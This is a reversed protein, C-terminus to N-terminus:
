GPETMRRLDLAKNIQEESLTGQELMLKKVSIRRKQAEKAIAAAKDYGIIPNLATVLASSMQALEECREANAKIGDVCKEAFATCANSLLTVSCLFNHIMVPIMVNLEFAGGQGGITIAADNGIVQAAVQAVVESMVPNVKGPMISSGPQLDPIHIEGLGCFPGSAMWRIDNAIKMVSCAVTKLGGSAMVLDDRGAQAEFHNRAERLPLGTEKALVAAVRKGFEPHATLGTGVASGGLALEHLGEAARKVAEIGKQVQMAYGGFEQGLRLPVADMLHTRGIKVVADFERAKKELSARLKQLAPYLQRDLALLASVHTATPIVDNSSQGMNVHDNPHVPKKDGRKGGLKENAINAIVENANMNTSTGSGTQFVDLVFDDDRKGDIVDQAADVIARAVKEDLKKLDLNVRACAQKTRGIAEIFCRSFRWGSIPFNEIARQTQAGYYADAPVQVPGMSDSETRFSMAM